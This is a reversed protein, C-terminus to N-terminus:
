DPISVLTEDPPVPGDARAANPFPLRPTRAIQEIRTLVGQLDHLVQDNRFRLVAYGAAVLHETRAQDRLQQDPEDHIGGDIEVALRRETCCFDLVLPGLAHQRRFRLGALRRNRLAEWLEIEDRTQRHRLSRAAQRLERSVGRVKGHTLHDPM